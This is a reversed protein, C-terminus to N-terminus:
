VYIVCAQIRFNVNILFCVCNDVDIDFITGTNVSGANKNVVVFKTNSLDYYSYVSNNTICCLYNGIIKTPEVYRYGFSAIDMMNISGDSRYKVELQVIDGNVNQSYQFVDGPLPLDSVKDEDIFSEYFEGNYWYTIKNRITETREDYAEVRSSCVGSPSNDSLQKVADSYWIAMKAVGYEDIDFVDFKQNTRDPVESIDTVRFDDDEYNNGPETKIQPPAIFLVTDSNMTYSRDYPGGAEKVFYYNSDTYYETLSDDIIPANININIPDGIVKTDIMYLKGSDNLNYRIPQHKILENEYFLSKLKTEIDSNKYVEGDIKVREELEYVKKDDNQTLLKIVARKSVGDTFDVNLVYAYEAETEDITMASIRGYPDLIFKGITGIQINDFYQEFSSNYLYKNDSIMVYKENDSISKENLIGFIEETNDYIYVKNYGNNEYYKILMDSKVNEINDALSDNYYLDVEMDDNKESIVSRSSYKTQILGLSLNVTQVLDYNYKEIVVLDYSGDAEVDTITIEVDDLKFYDKDFMTSKGNYIFAFNKSLNINKQKGNDSEYKLSFNDYIINPDNLFVMDSKNNYIFMIRDTDNNIFATVRHGLLDKGKGTLDYYSKDGIIIRDKGACNSASYLGSISNAYVIGEILELEWYSLITNNYRNYSILINYLIQRLDNEDMVLKSVDIRHSLGIKRAINLAEAQPYLSEKLRYDYGAVRAAVVMAEAISIADNPYFLNDGNGLMFGADKIYQIDSAGYEYRRYDAFPDSNPEKDSQFKMLKALAIGFEARTVSSKNEVDGKYIGLDDIINCSSDNFSIIEVNKKIDSETANTSITSSYSIVCIAGLLFSIIRKIARHKM